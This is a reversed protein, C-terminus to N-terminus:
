CCVEKMKSVFKSDLLGSNNYTSCDAQYKYYTEYYQAFNINRYGELFKLKGGENADEIRTHKKEYDVCQDGSKDVLGFGDLRKM